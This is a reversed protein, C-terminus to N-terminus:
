SPRLSSAAVGCWPSPGIVGRFGEGRGDPVIISPFELEDDRAPSAISCARPLPRGDDGALGIMVFEGSRFRLSRPRTVRFSSLSDAWRRAATVTQADPLTPAAALRSRLTTRDTM